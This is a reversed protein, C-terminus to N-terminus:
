LRLGKKELENEITTINMKKELLRLIETDFNNGEYLVYGAANLLEQADEPSLKLAFAMRIATSKSPKYKPSNRISYFIRQSIHGEYLISKLENDEYLNLSRKSMLEAFKKLFTTTGTDSDALIHSTRKLRFQEVGGNSEARQIIKVANDKIYEKVKFIRKCKNYIEKDFLVLIIDFDDHKFLFRMIQEIAIRLGEIKPFGNNGVALVPLAVRKLGEILALNLVNLYCRKLIDYEGNSGDTWIPAVAHIIKKTKAQLDFSDTIAVDGFEIKGIKERAALLKEKGAATYIALDTGFNVQVEHDASNVIVDVSEPLQTIDGRVIKFM